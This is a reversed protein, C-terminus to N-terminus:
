RVIGIQRNTSRGPSTPCLPQAPTSTGPPPRTPPCKGRATATSSDDSPAAACATNSPPAQNVESSSAASPTSSGVQPASSRSAVSECLTSAAGGVVTPAAEIRGSCASGD